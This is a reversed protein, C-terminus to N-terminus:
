IGRKSMVNFQRSMPKALTSAMKKSDVYLSIEQRNEESNMEAISDTFKGIASTIMENNRAIDRQMDFIVDSMTQIPENLKADIMPTVNLKSVSSMDDMRVVPSITPMDLAKNHMAENIGLIMSEANSIASNCIQSMSMDVESGANSIGIALGETVYEGLGMFVRSPSHINLVKKFTDITVKGLQTVYKQVLGTRSTLGKIFGMVMQVGAGTWKSKTKDVIADASKTSMSVASKESKDSNSEIGKGFAETSNEGAEICTAMISDAADDPLSLAQGYKKNVEAVQEPTMALFTDLVAQGSEQGTEALAEIIGQDFNNEALKKLGEAWDIQANLKKSYNELFQDASLSMSEEYYENAKALEEGTLQLFARVKDAGEPGMEELQKILGDCLGSEKLTELNAKWEKVGDIQSEMTGLIDYNTTDITLIQAYYDNAKQLEQATMNMFNRVTAIGQPGLEKLYNLLPKGLGREALEEINDKWKTVGQLQSEMNELINVPEGDGDANSGDDFKSFPDISNLSKDMKTFLDIGTDLSVSLFDIASEINDKISDRMNNFAEETHKAMAKEDEIVKNKAQDIEKDLNELESNLSSVSNTGADISTNLPNLENVFDSVFGEGSQMVNEFSGYKAVLNDLSIGHNKCFAAFKDKLDGLKIGMSDCFDTVKDSVNSYFDGIKSSAKDTVETVSSYSKEIAKNTTTTTTLTKKADKATGNIQKRLEERKACLKSLSKKDEELQKKDQKYQDSEEYLAKAYNKVSESAKKVVETNDAVSLTFEGYQKLYAKMAGSGYTMKSATEDVISLLNNSVFKAAEYPLKANDKIGLAMGEVIYKGITRFVRSPSHIDLTEKASDITSEAMLKAQTEAEKCNDRIGNAFGKAANAGAEYFDDISIASIANNILLKISNVISTKGFNVGRVLSTILNQGLAKFDAGKKSVEDKAYTIVSNFANIIRHGEELITNAIDDLMVTFQGCIPLTENEVRSRIAECLNYVGLEVRGTGNQFAEVITDISANGLENLSNVFSSTGSFDYKSVDNLLSALDTINNVAISLKSVDLSEIKEAFGSFDDAFDKLQDGFKTLSMKGYFEETTPLNNILENIKYAANVSPNIGDWKVGAVKRAYKALGDGFAEVATGFDDLDNNGVIAGLVGGSNPIIEALEIIKNAAPVSPAVGSWDTGAVIHAYQILGGGFAALGIGFDALDNNGVLKGLVGGSNPIIKALEVIQSGAKVSPAVGSWDTGAVIFAYQILSGGFATLGIGFDDLDNNGVLAGLAGGSNPIIKALQIIKNAANVSPEVGSWNVGNVSNAYQKMADGFDTIKESFAGLDNDGNFLESIFTSIGNVLEAGCLTLIADALFKAGQMSEADIGNVGNIFGELNTMFDTLHQGIAPLGSMTGEAFGGIMNGVFQGISYGIKSLVEMGHEIFSTDEILGFATLIGSMIGGLVLVFLSLSVAANIAEDVPIGQMIKCALAMALLVASIGAANILASETDLASMGWLVAGIAVVVATMIGLSILAQTSLEGSKSIIAFSATMALLALSIAGANVLANEVNLLSMAILIGGILGVAITIAVLSKTAEGVLKSAAIVVALMGMIISMAGVASYLNTQDIMSITGLAVMLVGLTIGLAIFPGANVGSAFGTCAVLLGMLIMLISMAGVAKNLRSADICSLTGAVVTLALMAGAMLVLMVGAKAAYKGAFNSLATVIGFVILLQTIVGKAKEIGSADMGAFLKFAGILIYISASMALIGVGAKAANKGALASVALIGMFLFLIQKLPELGDKIENLRLDAIDGLANIILKLSVAMSIIAIGASLGNGLKSLALSILTLTGIIGLIILIDNKVNDLHLKDMDSLASAMVKVAAAMSVLAISGKAINKETTAMIYAFAGLEVVFLSIIGINRLLTAENLTDLGKMALVLIGIAAAMGILAGISSASIKIDGASNIKGIVFSLGVLAASLVTIAGVSSWMTAPPIQCLVWISAALIAIAGAISLLAKAKISLTFAKLTGTFGNIAKKVSEVVSGIKEALDGLPGIIGGGKALIYVLSSGLLTTLIEGMGVENKLKTGLNSFVAVLRDKFTSLNGLTTELPKNIKSMVFEEFADSFGKVVAKLNKFRGDFNLLKGLVNEVFDDFAIKINNITLGDLEKVRGIFEGVTTYVDEFYEKFDNIIGKVSDLEFFAKVMDRIYIIVGAITGAVIGIAKTIVKNEEIWKNFGYLAEGISATVDLIDINLNSLVGSIIKFAIQLGGSVVNKVLSIISFLGKFTSTIKEINNENSTFELVSKSLKHFAAIFDFLKSAKDEKTLPNMVLAWADKISNFVNIISKGFNKIGELMLWRGNLNDINKILESISLGTKESLEKLTHIAYFQDYTFGAEALESRSLKTLSEIYEDQTETLDAQAENQNEISETNKNQASASETAYRKSIGLKENVKNQVEAWDYGLETLKSWREQMNGFEGNIVRNAISELDELSEGLSDISTKITEVPALLSKISDSIETFNQGFASELIYNRANSVNEIIGGFFDSVNTWMAKAEEFDGIIIEFSQTWGSQVAEKLTDMLQTFTKVKTAADEATVAMNAISEAQEETFGQQILDAKSYAGAFQKLTETLVETTIWGSKTISERFSGYMEIAENAGTGLLESTRVLADQFVKGGMGANVVSNWDMLSVKGAALAQSLQYMATSAQQSTSGSIAALNAIGKISEVSTELEVGAATFTGINRTMETFNYITKDAYHNLEDLAANVEDLTTGNHQTNALITQVANIQTEYEQLGTAVPDITFAKVLNKATNMASNTINSLASVAMVELASFKVKVAEIGEGIPNFNVKNVADNVKGLGNSLGDFRLSQKLKDLTSMSKEVNSEFQKNDFRMEVVRSDISKSM